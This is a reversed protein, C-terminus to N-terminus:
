PDSSGARPKKALEKIFNRINKEEGQILLCGDNQIKLSLGTKEALKTLKSIPLDSSPAIRVWKRGRPVSPLLKRQEGEQPPEKAVDRLRKLLRDVYEAGFKKETETMMLSEIEMLCADLRRRTETDNPSRDLIQIMTKALKLADITENPIRVGQERLNKATKELLSWKSSYNM